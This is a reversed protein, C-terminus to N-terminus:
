LRFEGPSNMHMIALFRAFSLEFAWGRASVNGLRQAVLSLKCALQFGVEDTVYSVQNELASKLRTVVTLLAKALIRGRVGDCVRLTLDMLARDIRRLARFWVGSRIARLRLKSLASKELAGDCVSRAGARNLFDVKNEGHFVALGRDPYM